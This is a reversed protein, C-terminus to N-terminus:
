PRARDLLFKLPNLTQGNAIVEYHVHDGTARGTSGAFGIVDGRRVRDNPKVKFRHLHAYRTMLGFGHDIVVMNGYAGMTSASRVVGHATAYIPQGKDTSIDLGSHFEKQGTFPDSRRGFVDTLWGHAPWITPTAAALAQARQVGVEALRLRSELGQLLDRLVGFTDDPPSLAPVYVSKASVGRHPGGAAQARVIAPLKQMAKAANADLESREGLDTIASQLTQIQATLAGTAARYSRNEIELAEANARLQDIEARASWRLGLGVLVPLVAVCVFTTAFARLTISVRRYSRTRRSAIV